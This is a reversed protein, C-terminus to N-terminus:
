FHQLLNFICFSARVKVILSDGNPSINKVTLQAFYQDDSSDSPRFMLRDGVDALCNDPLNLLHSMKIQNNEPNSNVKTDNILFVM